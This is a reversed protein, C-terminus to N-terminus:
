RLCNSYSSITLRLVWSCLRLGPLCSRRIPPLSTALLLHSRARCRRFASTQFEADTSISPRTGGRM